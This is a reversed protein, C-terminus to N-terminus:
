WGNEHRLQTLYNGRLNEEDQEMNCAWRGTIQDTTYSVYSSAIPCHMGGGYCMKGTDRDSDRIRM